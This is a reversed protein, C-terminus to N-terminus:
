SAFEVTDQGAGAWAPDDCEILQGRSDWIEVERNLHTALLRARDQAQELLYFEGTLVWNGDVRVKVRFYTESQSM